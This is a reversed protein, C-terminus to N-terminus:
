ALLLKLTPTKKAQSRVLLICQGVKMTGPFDSAKFATGLKQKLCGALGLGGIGLSGLTMNPKIITQQGAQTRMCKVVIADTTTAPTSLKASPMAKKAAAKKAM